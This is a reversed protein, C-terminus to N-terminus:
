SDNSSKSRENMIKKVTKQIEKDREAEGISELLRLESTLKRISKRLDINKSVLTASNYIGVLMMYAGISLMNITALGFPPHPVLSLTAAQDASFILFVGVGSIIMYLRISKEYSVLQSM